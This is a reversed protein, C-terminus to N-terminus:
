ERPLHRLHPLVGTSYYPEETGWFIFDLRLRGKAFRYLEEATVLNGTAPNRQALNGDQVAVGAVVTSKRAAILPYSHNLQGRRHPLLDPGGVGAGISDAFAYVARLYGKDNEPLWEGPMFNMYLIVCSRPFARRAAAANEKIGTVYSDFTFGSPRLAVSDFSVATEPLIIAEVRGDFERGLADLLKAFRTRVAPDWRRAVWGDFRAHAEDDGEYKRAVGGHFATDATLYDPVLIRDSFSVDQIQLVLRKGNRQLFTLRERIDSFDYRDRDPELQRWPYTLAAGVAGNNELFSPETVREYDRNFYIYNVPRSIASVIRSSDPRCLQARATHTAM